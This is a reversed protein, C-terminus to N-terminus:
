AVCEFNKQQQLLPLTFDICPNSHVTHLHNFFFNKVFFARATFTSARWSTFPSPSLTNKGKFGM